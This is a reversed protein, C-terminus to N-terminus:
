SVVVVGSRVSLPERSLAFRFGRLLTEGEWRLVVSGWEKSVSSEDCSDEEGVSGVGPGQQEKEQKLCFYTRLLVLALFLGLCIFLLTLFVRVKLTSCCGAVPIEDGSASKKLAVLDNKDGPINESFFLKYPKAMRQNKGEKRYLAYFTKPEMKVWLNPQLDCAFCKEKEDVKLKLAKQDKVIMEFLDEAMGFFVSGKYTFSPDKRVLKVGKEDVKQKGWIESCAAKFDECHEANFIPRLDVAKKTDRDVVRVKDPIPLQLFAKFGESDDEKRSAADEYARLHELVDDDLTVMQTVKFWGEDGRNPWAQVFPFCLNEEDKDKKEIADHLDVKERTTKNRPTVFVKKGPITLFEEDLSKVGSANLQGYYPFALLAGIEQEEEKLFLKELDKKHKAKQEEDGVFTIDKNRLLEGVAVMWEEKTKANKCDITWERSHQISHIKEQSVGQGNVKGVQFTYQPNELLQVLGEMRPQNLGWDKGSEESGGELITWTETINQCKSYKGTAGPQFWLRYAFEQHGKNYELVKGDNHSLYVDPKVQGWNTDTFESKQWLLSDAPNLKLKGADAGAVMAHCAPIGVLGLSLKSLSAM